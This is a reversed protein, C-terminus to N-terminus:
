VCDCNVTKRVLRVCSHESQSHKWCGPVVTGDHRQQTINETGFNSLNAFNKGKASSCVDCYWYDTWFSQTKDCNSLTQNRVPCYALSLSSMQIRLSRRHRGNSTWLWSSYFRAVKTLLTVPQDTPRGMDWRISQNIWVSILLIFQCFYLFSFPTTTVLYNKTDQLLKVFSYNFKLPACRHWKPPVRWFITM